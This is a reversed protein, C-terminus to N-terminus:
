ALLSAFKLVSGGIVAGLAAGALVDSPYHLGLVPRSLAVMLAFPVVMPALWPYHAIAVVSFSMAHLTHGSPFSFQDLAAAAACIDPNIQYPRPRLTRKKLWKYLALGLLGAALMQAVPGAAARGQTALLALMLGYWAVGDGLRSAVRFVGRVMRYHSARNFRLCLTEDLHVLRALQLDLRSM